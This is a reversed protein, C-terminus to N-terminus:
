KLVKIQNGDSSLVINGHLDTRYIKSNISALKDLTIKHPHGYDNNKGCSIIAIKPSAEKLFDESTSTKSGHHGLKLIDCSVDFGNSLIENESEEEADGNFLFKSNKYTIKLVISYNNLNDYSSHNPALVQCQINEGLNINDGPTLVNIKMNKAKLGQILDKFDSTNPPNYIKPAIFEGVKFNKLVLSMGGIHDEHPHTAIIYDLKTIGQTKIYSLVKDEADKPGADILLNKKNIQVLTCDGQGVDIYHVTLERPDSNIRVISSNTTLKSIVDNLSSNCGSLLFIFTSFIFLFVGIKKLTSNM